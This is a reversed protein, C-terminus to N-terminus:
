KFKLCFHGINLNLCYLSDIILLISLLTVNLYRNVSHKTNLAFLLYKKNTPYLGSEHIIQSVAVYLLINARKTHYGFNTNNYFSRKKQLAFRAAVRGTLHSADVFVKLFTVSDSANSGVDDDKFLLQFFDPFNQVVVIASVARCIVSREDVIM